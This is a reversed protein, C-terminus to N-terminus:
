RRKDAQRYETADIAMYRNMECMDRVGVVYLNRGNFKLLDNRAYTNIADTYVSHTCELGRQMYYSQESSNAPQVFAPVNSVHLTYDELRQANTTDKSMNPKYWDVTHIMM